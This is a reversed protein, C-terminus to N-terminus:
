RRPTGREGASSGHDRQDSRDVPVRRQRPEPPLAPEREHDVEEGHEDEDTNQAREQDALCLTGGAELAAVEALRIQDQRQDAADHRREHEPVRRADRETQVLPRRAPRRDRAPDRVAEAVALRRAHELAREDPRVDRDDEAEEDVRGYEFCRCMKVAAILTKKPRVFARPRNSGSRKSSSMASASRRNPVPVTASRVQFCITSAKEHVSHPRQWSAQGAQAVPFTSDGLSRIM